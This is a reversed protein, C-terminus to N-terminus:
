IKMAPGSGPPWGSAPGTSHLSSRPASASRPSGRPSSRRPWASSPSPSKHRRRPRRLPVAPTRARRERGGAAGRAGRGHPRAPKPSAAAPSATPIPPSSPASSPTEEPRNRGRGDPRWSGTPSSSLQDRARLVFRAAGPNLTAKSITGASSAELADLRDLLDSRSPRRPGAGRAGRPSRIASPWFPPWCPPRGRGGLRQGRDAPPRPPPPRAPPGDDAGARHRRTDFAGLQRCSRPPPWPRRIPPSSGASRPSTPEGWALLQLAPGALDVRAIEPTEREPLTAQEWAPWLRLCIGAGAARGPRGAPRGLGPQDERAGAPRARDGSRLAAPPGARLGGGGHRRRHHALDRGRQDRARGERRIPRLVEDQREARCSATSRCCPSTTSPPWAPSRKPSRQIEGVGPLFVLVDGATAGLVRRVRRRDPRPLPREDPRELYRIDVPLAPGPERDRAAGGLFAALPGPDLTASMALLKLDPRVERQVRRAMALALDTQLGREHFEDFIM